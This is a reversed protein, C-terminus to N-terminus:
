LVCFPPSTTYCYAFTTTISPTHVQMPACLLMHAFSPGSTDALLQVDIGISADRTLHLRM